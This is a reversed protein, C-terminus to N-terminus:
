PAPTTTLSLRGSLALVPLAAFVAVLALGGFGILTLGPGSLLAALAAVTNMSTDVVGQSTTRIEVPAADSLLTSGPITCCSWAFGLLFLPVMVNPGHTGFLVTFAAGSVFILQGVVIIRIPGFRDSAWGVVPAFAFMGLVHVSITMGILSLDAGEHSMHVPTMTMLSVMSVHAGVVAILAFRARPIRWLAPLVDKFSNAKIKPKAAGRLTTHQQFSKLPDPRLFVAIVIASIGIMVVAIVFAGSLPPLGLTNAVYEGPVGLNPGLVSGFMGSWVVLSLTRGRHQPPALDTAAFRTQLGTATGGGFMLMGAILLVPSVTVAALILVVGGLAAVSWGLALAVRRGGRAALLALPIGLLAAGLTLSTRALGALTESHVIEEALLIGVSPSAGMGFSGIVQAVTLVRVSRRQQARVEPAEQWPTHAAGAAAQETGISEIDSSM